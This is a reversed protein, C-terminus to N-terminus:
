DDGAELHLSRYKAEEAEVSKHLSAAMPGSWGPLSKREELGLVEIVPTIRGTSNTLLLEQTRALDSDRLTSITVADPSMSELIIQRMIGPLCGREVPPTVLRGDLVAFINSVSGEFIEGDDTTLLAEWAGRRLAQERALVHRLRNTSKLQALAASGISERVILVRAGEQPPRSVDRAGIILTPGRDPVGRTLTIRIAANGDLERCYELVALRLDWKLPWELGIHTSGRRLRDLHRELFYVCGDEFLLTEFVALGLHLGQDSPSVRGEGPAHIMGNIWTPYDESIM